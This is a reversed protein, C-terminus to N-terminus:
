NDTEDLDLNKNAYDILSEGKDILWLLYNLNGKVAWVFPVFAIMISGIIIFPIVVFMWLLRRIMM